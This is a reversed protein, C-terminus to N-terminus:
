RNKGLRLLIAAAAGLALWEALLVSLRLNARAISWEGFTPLPPSWIPATEYRFFPVVGPVRRELEWPAFIISLVLGIALSILICTTWLNRRPSAGKAMGGKVTRDNPDTPNPYTM